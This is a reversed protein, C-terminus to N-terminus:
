GGVWLVAGVSYVRSENIEVAEDTIEAKCGIIGLIAVNAM